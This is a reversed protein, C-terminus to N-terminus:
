QVATRVVGLSKPRRRPSETLVAALHRPPPRPCRRAIPAPCKSASSSECSVPRSVGRLRTGNAGIDLPDANNWGLRTECCCFVLGNGCQVAGSHSIEVVTTFLVGDSRMCVLRANRRSIGDDMKNPGIEWDGAAAADHHNPWQM